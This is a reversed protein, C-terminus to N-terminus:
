RAASGQSLRGVERDSLRGAAHLGRLAAEISEAVPRYAVGLEVLVASDDTPVPQTLVQMAEATFVTPFDVVDRIRDTVRGTLRLAAGPVPLLPFRRGTLARLTAAIDPMRVLRGGALFRDTATEADLCRALVGAVDRPDILPMGADRVVVVGSKVMSVYGEAADGFATGAPPGLVGGPYVIVIPHGDAQLRRVVAEALGKSRSYPNAAADNAPLDTTIVAAGDPRLAALSSVYVIRRCDAAIAADLVTATGEVNTRVTTAAGRRDLPAVHAAAHIVAEAGDVLRAAATRDTMDGVVLEVDGSDAVHPVLSGLTAGVRRPDRVLLRLKHGDHLLRAATHAGVYGTAGTVAVQM